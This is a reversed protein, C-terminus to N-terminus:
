GVNITIKALVNNNEDTITSTITSAPSDGPNDFWLSYGLTPNGDDDYSLKISGKDTKYEITKPNKFKATPNRKICGTITTLGIFLILFLLTKKYNKM